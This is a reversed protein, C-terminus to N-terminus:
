PRDRNPPLSGIAASAFRRLNAMFVRRLVPRTVAAGLAGGLYWPFSLIETWTLRTGSGVPELEFRGTGGVRGIHAIDMSKPPEWKTFEMVDAVVVPGIRTRVRIRAGVGDRAGTLFEISEAETMWDAHAGIDALQEWVISPDAAIDVSAVIPKVM